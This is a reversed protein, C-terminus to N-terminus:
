PEDWDPIRDGLGFAVCRKEVYWRSDPHTLAFSLARPIDGASHIPPILGCSLLGENSVPAPIEGPNELGITRSLPYRTHQEGVWLGLADFRIETPWPEPPLGNDYNMTLHCIWWPFQHEANMQAARISPASGLENRLIVLDESELLLVGARDPGLVAAGSVKATFPGMAAVAGDVEIRIEEVLGTSLTTMDGFWLMTVHAEDEQSLVGVPDDDAPLAVVLANTHPETV